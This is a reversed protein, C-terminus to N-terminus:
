NLALKLNTKKNDKPFSAKHDHIRTIFSSVFVYHLSVTALQLIKRTFLANIILQVTNRLEATVHTRLILQITSLEGTILAM